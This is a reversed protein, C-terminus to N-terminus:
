QRETPCSRRRCAACKRFRCRGRRRWGRESRCRDDPAGGAAGGTRTLSAPRWSRRRRESPKPCEPGASGAPCPLCLVANASAVRVHRRLRFIKEALDLHHARARREAQAKAAAAGIDRGIGVGAAAAHEVGRDRAVDVARQHRLRLARDAEAGEIVSRDNVPRLLFMELEVALHVEHFANEFAEIEILKLM